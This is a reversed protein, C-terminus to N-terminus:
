DEFIVTRHVALANLGAGPRGEARTYGLKLKSSTQPIAGYASSNPKVGGSIGGNEAGRLRLRTRIGIALQWGVLSLGGAFLATVIAMPFRFVLFGYFAGFVAATGGIAFM